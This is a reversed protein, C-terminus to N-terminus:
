PTSGDATPLNDHNPLAVRLIMTAAGVNAGGPQQVQVQVDVSDVSKLQSADLQGGTGMVLQTTTSNANYYAFPPNTTLVGTALVTTRIVCGAGTTCYHYGTADPVPSDPKQVTETLVGNTVDYTVRSPGVTNKPNDVDAYFSITTPTGKLFASDVCASTVCGSLQSQLVATRLNRSIRQMAITSSNSQNLREKVGAAVRQSATVMLMVCSVLLGLVVITVTLEALTVGDEGARLRALTTRSSSRRM